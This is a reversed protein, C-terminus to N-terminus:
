RGRSGAGRLLVPSERPLPRFELTAGTEIEMNWDCGASLPSLDIQSFTGTTSNDIFLPKSSPLTATFPSM